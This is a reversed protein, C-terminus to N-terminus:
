TVRYTVAVKGDHEGYLTQTFSGAGEAAKWVIRGKAVQDDGSIDDHDWLDVDIAFDDASTIVPEVLTFEGRSGRFIARSGPSSSRNWVKKSGGTGTLTITGYVEPDTKDDDFDLLEAKTITLTRTLGAGTFDNWQILHWTLNSAEDAYDMPVIGLTGGAARGMRDEVDRGVEPLVDEAIQHPTRPPTISYGSLHNVYLLRGSRDAQAADFHARVAELKTDVPYWSSLNYEDQISLAGGGWDTGPLGGVNGLLVIRGRAEGLTPLGNTHFVPFKRRVEEFCEVFGRDTGDDGEDDNHYEHKLRMFIMESPHDALFDRCDRVCDEFSANQYVQGHHILLSGGLNRCRIDLYRIGDRLQAAIGYRDNQCQAWGASYGPYRAGSEHTGPVTLRQVPTSDAIASMWSGRTIPAAPAPTSSATARAAPVGLAAGAAVFTATQLFHRRDMTDDDRERMGYLQM